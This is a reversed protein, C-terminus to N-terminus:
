LWFPLLKEELYPTFFTGTTLPTVSMAGLTTGNHHLICEYFSGKFQCQLLEWNGGATLTVYQPRLYYIPRETPAQLTFIQSLQLHTLEYVPGLLEAVYKQSPQYYISTASGSELLNGQQMVHVTHAWPLVDQPEHSIILFSTGFTKEIAELLQLLQQKHWNDLNTFPEDLVLLQPAQLLIKALAVRQKEGGSLETTKRHLLHAIQCIELTKQQWEETLKVRFVLYSEVTYNNRLEYQQSLYGIGVHEPLLKDTTNLVPQGQFLVTGSAREATGALIRAFSTKGAGSSGIIAVREGQQMSFSAVNVTVQQGHRKTINEAQLLM